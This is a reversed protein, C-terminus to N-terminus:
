DQRRLITVVSHRLLRTTPGWSALVAFVLAMALVFVFLPWPFNFQLPLQLFLQRQITMTWAVLTGTGFGMVSASVVLVFAEWIYLRKTTAVRLGLSRLIGIEKSQEHVNTYMSATLSFFCMVMSILTIVFFFVTLISSATQIAKTDTYYDNVEVADSPLNAARLAEAIDVRLQSVDDSTWGDRMRLGCKEYTVGEVGRIVGHTLSVWTPISVFVDQGKRAPFQSFVFLPAADLVAVAKMETLHDRTDDSGEERRETVQVFTGHGPDGLMLEKNYLSGIIAGNAGWVSYLQQSLSESNSSNSASVRLFSLDAVGELLNPSVGRVRPKKYLWYRGVNHIREEEILPHDRLNNTMWGWDLVSDSRQFVSELVAARDPTLAGRGPSVTASGGLRQQARYQVAMTQLEWSVSIWIIFALSVAYMMTTKRNRRRHAVLNKLVVARVAPNEWFFFVHTLAAELMHEFNLSLLILGFLLALLIGFFIYFLLTLNFTLMALPFMYYILFGFLALATGLIILTPSLTSGEAREFKYEVAKTKSHRTDLADQLNLQLASEIPVVSSILPIGIGVLTAMGVAFPDLGTELDMLLSDVLAQRIQWWVVQALVLGFVWAPLAYFFAQTLVLQVLDSRRMGVMRLVGLEFTRTEVNIMLLSYILLISLATLVLIVLSILLGLFLSFFRSEQMFKLVDASPEIQNFGVHYLLPAAWEVVALQVVAYDNSDYSARRQSPELSMSVETVFLQLDQSGIASKAEAPTNPHMFRAAHALFPEFEMFVFRNAGNEMKGHTDSITDHVKVPFDVIAYESYPWVPTAIGAERYAGILYPSLYTSVIVYDGAEVNLLRALASDFLAEGPPIREHPWARGFGQRKEKDTDIVHVAAEEMRIGGCLGEVCGRVANPCETVNGKAFGMYCFRLNDPFPEQKLEQPVNCEAMNYMMTQSGASPLVFRPSHFSYRNGLDAAASTFKRYDLTYAFGADGGPQLVLDRESNETEALRLFVMPLNALTTVLLSTTLVVLFCSCVGLCCAVKRKRVERFTFQLFVGYKYRLNAAERVPNIPGCKTEPQEDMDSDGDEAIQDALSQPEGGPAFSGHTLPHRMSESRGLSPNSGVFSM